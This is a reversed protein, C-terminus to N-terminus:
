WAAFGGDVSLEIGTIWTSLDSVLFAAAKAIDLPTGIRGLPHNSLAQERAAELNPAFGLRVFTELLKDGMETKILGPHISNIRIGYGLRGCEVAAAKGLLRVAGKSASYVSLAPTGVLGAISSINVISGGGAGGRAGPGGPRMARIGHKNGLLTGMINVDFLKSADATDVDALFGFKEIAANNVVADLGGFQAITREVAVEWDAECVVDLHRYLARGGSANIRAAVQEGQEDLVDGLMVDAGQSAFFEGIAAGIGRAAGSILVVKNSLDIM